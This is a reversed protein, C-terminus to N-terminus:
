WNMSVARKEPIRITATVPFHDSPYRGNEKHHDIEADLVQANKSISIHDIKDCTFSGSFKHYTGSKPKGPNIAQWVNVMAAFKDQGKIQELYQM